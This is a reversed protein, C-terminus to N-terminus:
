CVETWYLRIFLMKRKFVSQKQEDFCWPQVCGRSAQGRKKIEKRNHRSYWRTSFVVLLPPLAATSNNVSSGFVKCLNRKKNSAAWYIIEASPGPNGPYLNVCCGSNVHCYLACCGLSPTIWWPNLLNWCEPSLLPIARFSSQNQATDDGEEGVGVPKHAFVPWMKGVESNCFDIFTEVVFFPLNASSNGLM